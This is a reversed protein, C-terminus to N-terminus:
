VSNLGGQQGYLTPQLLLLAPLLAPLIACFRALRPLCQRRCDPPSDSEDPTVSCLPQHTM